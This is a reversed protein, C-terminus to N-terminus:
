DQHVVLALNDLLIALDHRPRWDFTPVRPVTGIHRFAGFTHFNAQDDAIVAVVRFDPPVACHAPGFQDHTALAIHVRSLLLLYHYGLTHRPHVIDIHSHGIGGTEIANIRVKTMRGDHAEIASTKAFAACFFHADLIGFQRCAEDAVRALILLRVIVKVLEYMSAVGSLDIRAFAGITNRSAWKLEVSFPNVVWFSSLFHDLRDRAGSRTRGFTRNFANWILYRTM